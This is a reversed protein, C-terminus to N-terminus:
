RTHMRLFDEARYSIIRYRDPDLKDLQAVMMRMRPNHKLRDRHRAVFRWFLGDWIDSWEGKQYHSMSLIYNSSSVYPKTVISGGDAFQSMGYVNPVMVWDYADVFMESFWRYVEDPHIECLLMLNGAIMLREIHHAYGHRQLKIVIDDFPSLGLSGDYWSSTLQRRNDLENSNRMPVGQVVYLGRMYERWGLIQRIFGELSAIPVKQRAHRELAATIIQHPSLLGINLSPTLVSHFVWPAMGDIADEYPGFEDLRNDVFDNLWVQAEAHSTPWIFDTGGPNDRFHKEVWKTAKTVEDHSGFVEFSPLVMDKPLRKRNEADFNWKGGVPKYDSGILVNFRERQWQYFNAFLHKERQQFYNRVEHEELYFNPTPLVEFTFVYHKAKRAEQLRRMLVDDVADFMVVRDYHKTREFIDGTARLPDLEVYEVTQNTPWLVEAVYRRMSARHLILKQKHMALPYQRDVGFYLPEEVMFVTDAAPLSEFHYLQHPYLILATKVSHRKM